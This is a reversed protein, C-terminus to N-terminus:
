VGFCSLYDKEIMVLIEDSSSTFGELLYLAQGGKPHNWETNEHQILAYDYGDYRTSYRGTYTLRTEILNGMSLPHEEFSNSLFGLDIPVLPDTREKVILGARHLTNPMLRQVAGQVRYTWNLFNGVQVELKIM